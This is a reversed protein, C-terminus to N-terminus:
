NPFVVGGRGRPDMVLTEPGEEGVTYVSGPLVPGGSARGGISSDITATGRGGAYGYRGVNAAANSATKQRDTDLWAGFEQMPVVLYSHIWKGMEVLRWDITAWLADDKGIRDFWQYLEDGKKVAGDIASILGPGGRNALDQWDNSLTNSSQQLSSLTERGNATKKDLEDMARSVDKTGNVLNGQADSYKGTSIGLDILGRFRGQEAKVLLDVAESLDIHKLAAIDVARGMDKQVEAQTLGSRTLKAYGDIVQSQDSVYRRNSLMFDDINRQYKTLDTGAASYAQSLGLTAVQHKESIDIMSKGGVILLGIGAAVGALALNARGFSGVLNTIAGDVGTSDVRIRAILDPLARSAM